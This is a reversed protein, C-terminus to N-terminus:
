RAGLMTVPTPELYRDRYGVGIQGEENRGWAYVSGDELLALSHFAGVAIAVSPGPLDVEVMDTIRDITSGNGLEGWGNHGWAIVRGDRRLALTHAHGTQIDVVDRPIRGVLTPEDRHSNTGDGLAGFFNMGWAYVGQDATVAFSRDFNTFMTTVVTPSGSLDEKDGTELDVRPRIM